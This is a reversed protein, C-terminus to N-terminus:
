VELSIRSFGPSDRAAALGRPRRSQPQQIVTCHVGAMGIVGYMGAHLGLGERIGRRARRLLGARVCTRAVAAGEGDDGSSSWQV